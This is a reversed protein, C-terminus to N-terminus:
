QRVEGDVGRIKEVIIQIRSLIQGRHTALTLLLRYELVYVLGSAIMKDDEVVLIQKMLEGRRMIFNCLFTLTTANSLFSKAFCM